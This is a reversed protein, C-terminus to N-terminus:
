DLTTHISSGHLASPVSKRPHLDSQWKDQPISPYPEGLTLTGFAVTFPFYVLKYYTTQLKYISIELM